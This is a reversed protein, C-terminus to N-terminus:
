SGQMGKCPGRNQGEQGCLRHPLAHAGKVERCSKKCAQMDGKVGYLIGPSLILKTSIELSRAEGVVVSPVSSCWLYAKLGDM